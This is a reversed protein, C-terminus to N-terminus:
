VGATLLAVADPKGAPSVVPRAAESVLRRYLRRLPEPGRLAPVDGHRRREARLGAVADPLAAELVPLRLGRLLRRLELEPAVFWNDFHTVIRTPPAEHLLRRYYLEWLALATETTLEPARAQLSAVVALPHRVCVVVQLAPVLRRWFRLTLSMRPDSCAWPERTALRALVLTALQELRPATEWHEPFQPPLDWAGDYTQLISDNVRAFLASDAHVIGCRSFLEGLVSGGAGHMGLIAIPVVSHLLRSAM